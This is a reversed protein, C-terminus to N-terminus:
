LTYNLELVHIITRDTRESADSKHHRRIVIKMHFHVLVNYISEIARKGNLYADCVNWPGNMWRWSFSSERVLSATIIFPKM